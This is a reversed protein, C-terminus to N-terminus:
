NTFEILINIFEGNGWIEGINDFLIRLKLL